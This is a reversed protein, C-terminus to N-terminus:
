ASDGIYESSPSLAPRLEEASDLRCPPQSADCAQGGREACATGVGARGEQNQPEEGGRPSKSKETLRLEPEAKPLPVYFPDPLTM